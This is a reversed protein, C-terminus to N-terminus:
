VRAQTGSRAGVAMTDSLDNRIRKSGSAIPAIAAEAARRPSPRVLFAWLGRGRGEKGEVIIVEYGGSEVEESRDALWRGDIKKGSEGFEERSRLSIRRIGIAIGLNTSM